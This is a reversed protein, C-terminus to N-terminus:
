DTPAAGMPAEEAILLLRRRWALRAARADRSLPAGPAMFDVAHNGGPWVHLEATGASRWLLDAYAVCEDRFAEVSGVDVFAPPLGSLDTARAPAAYIPVDLGGAGVGSYASRAMEALALEIAPDLPPHGPATM